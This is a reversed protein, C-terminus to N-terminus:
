EMFSFAYLTAENLHFQLQIYKGIYESLDNGSEWVVQEDTVDASILNSKQNKNFIQVQISGNNADASLCLHKSTCLVPKTIVIGAKDKSVPEYGAFGDPRLTALCFFGDRWGTHPGNSAGYYIRTENQLFIPTAAAFICGWDYEDKKESNPIFATGPSIRHWEYTDPSWALECHVRDEETNFIMILGLYLNAYPFVTMAYTQNKKNGRLVEEAKTWHIFDTSETRGVVRQDTWLRTIGIYKKLKPDWFANNHTDGRAQIEPCATLNNWHIGDPSFMVSMMVENETFFMKFQKSSETEHKDYFLGVGHPGRVLINNGKSGNFDVVDLAPKKWQIGDNSIAYCVGMERNKVKYKGRYMEKYTVIDRKKRPTESTASDIIFPSYWCKYLEDSDDYIVNAYVNDFRVEWPKEEGFLPNASHKKPKGLHLTANEAKDVIRSDLLLYKNHNPLVNKDKHTQQYFEKSIVKEANKQNNCSNLPSITILCCLAFFTRLYNIRHAFGIQM